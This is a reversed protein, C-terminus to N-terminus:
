AGQPAPAINDILTRYDILCDKRGQALCHAMQRAEADGMREDDGYDRLAQVLVGKHV